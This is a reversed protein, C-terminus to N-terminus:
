DAVIVLQCIPMNNISDEIYIMTDDGDFVLDAMTVDSKLFGCDILAQLIQDDESEIVISESSWGKNYLNKYAPITLEREICSRDNITYGDDANGWVDFSWLEFIQSYSGDLKIPNQVKNEMTKIGFSM